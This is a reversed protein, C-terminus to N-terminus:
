DRELEPYIDRCLKGGWNYATHFRVPTKSTINELNKHASKKVSLKLTAPGTRDIELFTVLTNSHLDKDKKLTLWVDHQTFIGPIGLSEETKKSKTKSAYDYKERFHYHSISLTIDNEPTGDGDVDFSVEWAYELEQDPVNERDYILVNPIHVFTLDAEIIEDSVSINMTELDMFEFGDGTKDRYKGDARNTYKFSQQDTEYNKFLKSNAVFPDAFCLHTFPTNVQLAHIGTSFVSLAVLILLALLRM